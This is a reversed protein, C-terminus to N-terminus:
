DLFISVNYIRFNYIVATGILNAEFVCDEFPPTFGEGFLIADNDSEARM